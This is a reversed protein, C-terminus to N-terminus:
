WEEINLVRCTFEGSVEDFGMASENVSQGPGISDVSTGVEAIRTGNGDVVEIDVWVDAATDGNNTVLIDAAADGFSDQYCNVIEVVFDGM